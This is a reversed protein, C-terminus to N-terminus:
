ADLAAAIHRVRKALEEPTAEEDASAVVRVLALRIADDPCVEPSVNLLRRVGDVNVSVVAMRPLIWM